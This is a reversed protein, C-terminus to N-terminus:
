PSPRFLCSKTADGSVATRSSNHWMSNWYDGLFAATTTKDDIIYGFEQLTAPYLNDSGVYFAEDDVIWVKAHNGPKQGTRTWIDEGSFRLTALHFNTCLTAAVNENPKKAKARALIENAMQQLTINWGYPVGSANSAGRESLVLFVEVGALAQSVLVDLERPWYLNKGTVFALDQQSMRIVKKAMAFAAIRANRGTEDNTPVIGLGYNGIALARITGAAPAPPPASFAPCRNSLGGKTDPGFYWATAKCAVTWMPELYRHASAAAPGTIEMSVDHIPAERLYDNEWLNHGGFIVSVDNAVIKAHNWSVRQTLPGESYSTKGVVVTLNSGAVKRADRVLDSLISRPELGPDVASQGLLVRVTVPRKTKAIYTIGNRLTAMFRGTPSSLSAVDVVTNANEFIRHIRDLFRDSHGICVRRLDDIRVAPDNRTARLITCYGSACDGKGSGSCYPLAFDANQPVGAAAVVVPLEKAPRGWWNPTQLLWPTVMFLNKETLQWSKPDSRPNERLVRDIAKTLSEGENRAPPQQAFVASTVLTALLAPGIKM